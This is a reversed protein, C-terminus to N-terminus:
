LRARLVSTAFHAPDGDDPELSVDVLAYHHVDVAIPMHVDVRGDRGVRFTGMSVMRGRADALWAEYYDHAGSSPPGSGRLRADDGAITLSAHGAPGPLARLALTTAPAAGPGDDGGGGLVLVLVVVAAAAVALAGSLALRRGPPTDRRTEEGGGASPMGRLRALPGRASPTGHLRALRRRLAGRAPPPALGLDGLPPPPVPEWGLRDLTTLATTAARRRDVEARFTPDEALLRDAVAREDDALLGLAVTAPAIPWAPPTVVPGGRGDARPSARPGPGDPISPGWRWAPRRPSRPRASTATSACSWSRREDSPLRSLLHSMRWRDLAEGQPLMPPVAPEPLEAPDHPEPRRRRLEDIARSRAITLAWTALWGHAADYREGRRWIETMVQQFVDEASARERLVHLLYGFITAGYQAHFTELARADGARLAKGLARDARGAPMRQRDAARASTVVPEATLSM